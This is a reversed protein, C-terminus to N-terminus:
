NKLDTSYYRTSILALISFTVADPDPIIFVILENHSVRHNGFVRVVNTHDRTAQWRALTVHKNSKKNERGAERLKPRLGRAFISSHDRLPTFASFVLM